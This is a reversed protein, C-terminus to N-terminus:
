SNNSTPCSKAPMALEVHSKLTITKVIEMITSEALRM